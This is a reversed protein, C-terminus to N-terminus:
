RVLPSNLWDIHLQLWNNLLGYGNVLWISVLVIVATGVLTLSRIFISQSRIWENWADYKNRAYKLLRGAWPFERALIALGAFVILWGPGPYPIAIVGVVLVTGGGLGVAFRRVRRSKKQENM